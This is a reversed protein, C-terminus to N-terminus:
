STPRRARAKSRWGSACWGTRGSAASCVTRSGLGGVSFEASQKVGTSRAHLRLLTPTRHPGFGPVPCGARGGHVRVADASLAAFRVNTFDAAIDPTLYAAPDGVEYILQQTCTRASLEGGSGGLKRVVTNGEVDLDAFPQSM